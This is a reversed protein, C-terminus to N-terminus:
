RTSIRGILWSEFRTRGGEVSWDRMLALRATEVGQEEALDGALAMNRGAVFAIDRPHPELQGQAALLSAVHDASDILEDAERFAPNRLCLERISRWLRLNAFVAEELQGQTSARLLQDACANLAVALEADRSANRPMWHITM